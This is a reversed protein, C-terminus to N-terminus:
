RAARKHAIDITLWVIGWVGFLILLWSAFIQAM